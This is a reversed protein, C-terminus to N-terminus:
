SIHDVICYMYMYDMESVIQVHISTTRKILREVKFEFEFCSWGRPFCVLLSEVDVFLRGRVKHMSSFLRDAYLPDM